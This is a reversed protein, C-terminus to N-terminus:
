GRSRLRCNRPASAGPPRALREAVARITQPNTLMTTHVGDIAINERTITEGKPGPEDICSTWAVVRDHPAYIATTPVPPPSALRALAFEQDIHWRSLARYVPLLPSATPVRFPSCITIVQRVLGPHDNALARALVGGLSYGVLSVPRGGKNAMTVLRRNVAAWASPTPGLNLGAGWGEVAYGLAALLRRFSATMLDSTVFAPIVLVPHGDGRPLSGIEASLNRVRRGDRVLAGAEALLGHWPLAPTGM